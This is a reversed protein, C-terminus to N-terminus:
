GPSGEPAEPDTVVVATNAIASRVQGVPLRLATALEDLHMVPRLQVPPGDPHDLRYGRDQAAVLALYDILAGDGYQATFPLKLRDALGYIHDSQTIVWAKIGHIYRVQCTYAGNQDTIWFTYGCEIGDM